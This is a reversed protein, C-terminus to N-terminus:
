RPSAAKLEAREKLAGATRAYEEELAAHHEAISSVAMTGSWRETDTFRTGGGLLAQLEFTHRGFFVDAVGGQWALRYPPTVQTFEAVFAQDGAVGGSLRFALQAGPKPEPAAGDLSLTPHWDAYRSFDTLVGWVTEPPAAIDTAVTVFPDNEQM